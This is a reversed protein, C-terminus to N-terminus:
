LHIYHAMCCKCAIIKLKHCFFFLGCKIVEKIDSLLYTILENCSLSFQTLCFNITKKVVPYVKSIYKLIYNVYLTLHHMKVYNYTVLFYSSYM